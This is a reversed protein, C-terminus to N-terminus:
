KVQNDVLKLLNDWEIIAYIKSRNRKFIVLPIRGNKANKESQQIASWISLKETNKAEIDFPIIKQAAPSLKVDVGHEGIIASKIDGEQLCGFSKYLSEVIDDQLRRGKAKKSSVRM